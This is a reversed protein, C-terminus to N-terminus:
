MNASPPPSRPLYFWLDKCYYYRLIEVLCLYDVFGEIKLNLDWIVSLKLDTVSTMTM